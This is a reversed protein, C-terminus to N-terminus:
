SRTGRPGPELTLVNKAIILGHHAWSSGMGQKSDYVGSDLANFGRDGGGGGGGIEGPTPTPTGGGIQRPDPTWGRGWGRNAPFRPDVGVGVGSEGSDPICSLVMSYQLPTSNLSGLHKIKLNITSGFSM